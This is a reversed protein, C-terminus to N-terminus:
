VTTFGARNKVGVIYIEITLIIIDNNIEKSITKLSLFNVYCLLYDPQSQWQM